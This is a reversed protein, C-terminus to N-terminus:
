LRHSSGAAAALLTILAAAALGGDDLLLVEDPIQLVAAALSFLLQAPHAAKRTADM